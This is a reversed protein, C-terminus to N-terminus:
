HRQRVGRGISKGGVGECGEHDGAGAGACGTTQSVCGPRRGGAAAACPPHPVVGEGKATGQLPNFLFLMGGRGCGIGFGHDHGKRTCRGAFPCSDPDEKRPGVNRSSRMGMLGRKVVWETGDM